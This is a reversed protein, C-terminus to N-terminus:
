ENQNQTPVCLDLFELLATQLLDPAELMSLHGVGAWRHVASTDPLYTVDLIRDQPILTDDKGIVFLVPYNGQRLVESRDPRGLMAQLGAIYAEAPYSLGRQILYEVQDPRASAFAPSFLGPILQRVYAPHGSRQILEISRQRGARREESDAFPHSHILGLGALRDPFHDAFALAVYGGMSHGLLLCREEKKEDLIAAVVSALEEMQYPGSLPTQGFGPLDLCLIRCRSILAPILEQWVTSDEGFGHVLVLLPGSEGYESFAFSRDNVTITSQNDM